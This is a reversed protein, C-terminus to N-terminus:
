KRVPWLHNVEAGMHSLKRVSAWTSTELIIKLLTPYPVVSFDSYTIYFSVSWHSTPLRVRYRKLHKKKRDNIKREVKQEKLRGRSQRTKHNWSPDRARTFLILAKLEQSELFLHSIFGVSRTLYFVVIGISLHNTFFATANCCDQLHNM